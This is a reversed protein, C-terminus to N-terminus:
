ENQRVAKKTCTLIKSVAVFDVHLTVLEGSLQSGRGDVRLPLCMEHVHHDHVFADGDFLDNSHTVSEDGTLHERVCSKGNCKILYGCCMMGFDANGDGRRGLSRRLDLEGM